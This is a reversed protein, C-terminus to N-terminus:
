LEGPALRVHKFMILYNSLFCIHSFLKHPFLKFALKTGTHLVLETQKGHDKESLAPLTSIRSIDSMYLWNLHNLTLARFSQVEQIEHQSFHFHAPANSEQSISPILYTASNEM